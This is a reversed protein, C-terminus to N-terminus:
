RGASWSRGGVGARCRGPRLARENRDALAALSDQAATEAALALRSAPRRTTAGVHRDPRPLPRPLPGARAAPLDVRVTDLLLHEFQPGNIWDLVQEDVDALHKDCFEQYGSSTSTGTPWAPPVRRAEARLQPRRSRGGRLLFPHRPRSPAPAREGPLVGDMERAGADGVPLLLAAVDRRRGPLRQRLRDSLRRRGQGAGRLFQVGVPLVRQDDPSRSSRTAPAADLFGHEVRYREHM